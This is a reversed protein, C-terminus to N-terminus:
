CPAEEDDDRGGEMEMESVVPDVVTVRAVVTFLWGVWITVTRGPM